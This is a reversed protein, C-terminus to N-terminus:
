CFFLSVQACNFITFLWAMITQYIVDDAILMFFGFIWTLGMMFVMTCAAFLNAKRRRQATSRIQM